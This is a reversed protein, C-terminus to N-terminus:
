QLLGVDDPVVLKYRSEGGDGGGEEHEHDIQGPRMRAFKRRRARSGGLSQVQVLLFHFCREDSINSDPSCVKYVKSGLVSSGLSKLTVEAVTSKSLVKSLKEEEARLHEEKYRIIIPIIAIIFVIILTLIIIIM